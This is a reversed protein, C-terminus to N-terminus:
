RIGYIKGSTCLLIRITLMHLYSKSSNGDYHFKLMQRIQFKSMKIALHKYIFKEVEFKEQFSKRITFLKRSNKMFVNM